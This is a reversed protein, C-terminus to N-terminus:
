EGKTVDQEGRVLQVVNEPTDLKELVKQYDETLGECRVIAMVLVNLIAQTAAWSTFKDKHSKGELDRIRQHIGDQARKFVQLDKQVEHLELLIDERTISM